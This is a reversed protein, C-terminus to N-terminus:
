TRGGPPELSEPRSRLVTERILIACSACFDRGKADLQRINTALSMACGPDMCHTLGFTHGVEHLAEKAVRVLLLSRNAPLGYFEQRLRALSLVAVPGDLQAQGYVFSLMPIFIDAETVVLLKEAGAPFHALGERMILTSSFQRREADYAYTPPALPTTREAPLGIRGALSARAVDLAEGDVAGAAALALIGV